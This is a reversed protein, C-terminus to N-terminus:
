IKLEPSSGEPVASPRLELYAEVLNLLLRDTSVDIPM